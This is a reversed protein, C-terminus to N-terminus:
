KLPLITRSHYTLTIHSLSIHSQYERAEREFLVYSDIFNSRLDIEVDTDVGHFAREHIARIQLGRLDILGGSNEFAYSPIKYISNRHNSFHARSHTVLSLSSRFTGM